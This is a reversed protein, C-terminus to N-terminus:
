DKHPIVSKKNNHLKIIFNLKEQNIIFSNKQGGKERTRKVVDDQELKRLYQYISPKSINTVDSIYDATVSSLNDVSTQVLIKMVERQNSSYIDYSNIAEIITSKDKM